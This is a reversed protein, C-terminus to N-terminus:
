PPPEVVPKKLEDPIEVTPDKLMIARLETYIRKVNSPFFNQFRFGAYQPPMKVERLAQELPEDRQVAEEALIRLDKLYSLFEEVQQRNGVPGHGPVFREAPFRLLEEVSRIWDLMRADDTSPLAGNFFLDGAFVIKDRPLYLILDGDTHGAGLFHFEVPHRSDPIRLSRDVTALPPCVRIAAMANVFSQRSKLQELLILKQADAAPRDLQRRIQELQGEARTIALNVAPIDRELIDRRTSTSAIVLAGEFAATGHTHDPHFHSLVVYRVPNPSVAAIKQALQRGAEASFHTDFVMTADSLLVVGANSVFISDPSVVHGYVGEALKVFESQQAVSEGATLGAILAASALIFSRVGLLSNM